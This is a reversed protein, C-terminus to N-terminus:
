EPGPFVPRASMLITHIVFTEKIFQYLGYKDEVIGCFHCM